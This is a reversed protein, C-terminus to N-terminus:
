IHQSGVRWVRTSTPRGRPRLTSRGSTPDVRTPGAKTQVCCQFLLHILLRGHVGTLHLHPNMRARPECARMQLGYHYALAVHVALPNDEGFGQAISMNHINEDFGRYIDDVTLEPDNNIEGPIGFYPAGAIGEVVCGAVVRNTLVPSLATRFDAACSSSSTFIGHFFSNPPGHVADIYALGTM